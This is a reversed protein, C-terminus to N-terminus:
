TSNASGRNLCMCYIDQSVKHRNSIEDNQGNMSHWSACAFRNVSLGIVKFERQLKVYDGKPYSNEVQNVVKHERQITDIQLKPHNGNQNLPCSKPYSQVLEQDSCRRKM